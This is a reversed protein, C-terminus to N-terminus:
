RDRASLTCAPLHRPMRSAM